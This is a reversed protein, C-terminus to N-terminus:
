LKHLQADVVMTADADLESSSTTQRFGTMLDQLYTVKNAAAVARESLPRAPISHLGDLRRTARLVAM